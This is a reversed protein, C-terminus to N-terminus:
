LGADLVQGLRSVGIFRLYSRKQSSTGEHNPLEDDEDGRAITQMTLDECSFSMPAHCLSYRRIKGPSDKNVPRPSTLTTYMGVNRTAASRTLSRNTHALFLHPENHQREGM